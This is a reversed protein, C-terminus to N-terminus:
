FDYGIALHASMQRFDRDGLVPELPSPPFVTMTSGIHAGITVHRTASLRRSYDVGINLGHDVLTEVIRADDSRGAESSRYLYEATAATNSAFRHSFHARVGFLGLSRRGIGASMTDTNQYNATASMSSRRTVDHTLTMTTAYFY